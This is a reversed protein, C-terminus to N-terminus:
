RIFTGRNLSKLAGMDAIWQRVPHLPGGIASVTVIAIVPQQDIFQIFFAFRPPHNDSAVAILDSDIGVVDAGERQQEARILDIETLRHRHRDIVINDM